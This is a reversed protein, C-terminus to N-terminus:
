KDALQSGGEDDATAGSCLPEHHGRSLEGMGDREEGGGENLGRRDAAM